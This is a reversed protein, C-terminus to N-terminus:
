YSGHINVVSALLLVALRSKLMRFASIYIFSSCCSHCHQYEFHTGSLLGLAGEQKKGTKMDLDIFVVWM